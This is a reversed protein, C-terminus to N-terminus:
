PPEPAPEEEKRLAPLGVGEAPRARSRGRGLKRPRGVGPGRLDGRPRAAATGELRSPGPGRRAGGPRVWRAAMACEPRSRGGGAPRDAPGRASPAKRGGLRPFPFSGHGHRPGQSGKAALRSPPRRSPRRAAPLSTLDGTSPALPTCM